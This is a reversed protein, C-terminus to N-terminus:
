KANQNSRKEVKLCEAATIVGDHNLDYRNFENLLEPTWERGHAYEAMTVQGDGDADYKLFWDPLGTVREQPTRFRGSKPM